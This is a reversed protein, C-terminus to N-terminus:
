IGLKCPGVKKYRNKNKIKIKIKIEEKGLKVRANMMYSIAIGNRHDTKASHNTRKNSV